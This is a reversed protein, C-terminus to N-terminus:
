STICSKDQPVYSLWSNAIAGVGRVMRFSSSSAESFDSSSEYRASLARLASSLGKAHHCDRLTFKGIRCSRACRMRHTGADDAEDSRRNELAPRVKVAFRVLSVGALTAWSTVTRPAM